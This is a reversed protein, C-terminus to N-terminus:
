KKMYNRKFEVIARGFLSIVDNPNGELVREFNEEAAVFDSISISIMGKTRLSYSNLYSEETAKNHYKNFKMMVREKESVDVIRQSEQLFYCAFSNLLRIKFAADAETKVPLEMLQHEIM